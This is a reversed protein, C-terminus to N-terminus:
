PMGFFTLVDEGPDKRFQKSLDTVKFFYFVGVFTMLSGIPMLFQLYKIWHLGVFFGVSFVLIGYGILRNIKKIAM